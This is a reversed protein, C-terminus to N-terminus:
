DVLNQELLEAGNRLWKRVTDPDISLGLSNADTVIESPVESKKAKPNYSYGKVAMTIVMKTLSTTSNPNDTIQPTVVANQKKKNIEKMVFNAMDFPDISGHAGGQELFEQLQELSCPFALAPKTLDKAPHDSVAARESPMICVNDSPPVVYVGDHKVAYILWNSPKDVRCLKIFDAYGVQIM